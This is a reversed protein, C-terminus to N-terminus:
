SSRFKEVVVVIDNVYDVRKVTRQSPHYASIFLKGNAQIYQCTGHNVLKTLDLNLINKYLEITNGFIFVNPNLLDIQKTLLDANKSISEWLDGYNTWTVGKAPLKQSNIFAVQRVIDCMEHKDRLLSMENWKPFDNFISYSIYIMPHWTAKHGGRFTDMYLNKGEPFMDHYRWGGDKGGEGDYPEKLMWALRINNGFYLDPKM